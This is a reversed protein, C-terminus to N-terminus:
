GGQRLYNMKCTKTFQGSTLRILYIGSSVEKGQQNRGNWLTELIGRMFSERVLIAIERGSIDFISIKVPEKWLQPIYYNIHTITNFPNPYNPYLTPHFPLGTQATEKVSTRTTDGILKGNLYAGVLFNDDGEVTEELLGINSALYRFISFGVRGNIWHGFSYIQCNSFIGLPIRVIANANSFTVKWKQMLVFEDCYFYYRYLSDPQFTYYLQEDNLLKNFKMVDGNASKRYYHITNYVRGPEYYLDYVKDDFVFYKKQKIITTDTIRIVQNAWHRGVAGTTLKYNWKNGIRMPFYDPKPQAPLRNIFILCILLEWNLWKYLATYNM